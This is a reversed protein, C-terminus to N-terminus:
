FIKIGSGLIRQKWKFNETESTARCLAVAADKVAERRETKTKNQKTKNKPPLPSKVFKLSRAGQLLVKKRKMKKKFFHTKVKINEFL